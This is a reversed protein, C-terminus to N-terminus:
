FFQFLSVSNEHFRQANMISCLYCADLFLSILFFSRVLVEFGIERNVMSSEFKEYFDRDLDYLIVLIFEEKSPSTGKIFNKLILQMRYMHIKLFAFSFRSDIYLRSLSLNIYSSYKEASSVGLSMIKLFM